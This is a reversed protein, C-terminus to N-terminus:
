IYKEKGIVLVPEVVAIQLYQLYCCRFLFRTCLHYFLNYIDRYITLLSRSNGRRENIKHNTKGPDSM